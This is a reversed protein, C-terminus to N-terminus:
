SCYIGRSGEPSCRNAKCIYTVGERGIKLLRSSISRNFLQSNAVYPTFYVVRRGGDDTVDLGEPAVDGVLGDVYICGEGGAAAEVELDGGLVGRLGDFGGGALGAAYVVAVGGIGEAAWGVGM